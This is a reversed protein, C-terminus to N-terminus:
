TWTKPRKGSLDTTLESVFRIVRPIKYEAMNARCHGVIDARSLTVGPELAITAAVVDLGRPNTEAEVMCERVGDIANIVRQVESPDVKLGGINIWPVIRGLVYLRGHDDLRGLDGTRLFGNWYRPSKETEGVYGAAVSVGKVAVEGSEGSPLVRDGDLIVAEMGPVLDGVCHAPVSDERQIATVGTEVSGYSDRIAIGYRDKWVAALKPPLPASGTLCSRLTALASAPVGADAILGYAVPSSWLLDVAHQEITRAALLPEFRPLLVLTAGASLPLVLNNILGHGHHFPVAALMRRGPTMGIVSAVADAAHLLGGNTRPVIKPRGTSGSSILYVVPHRDPWRDGALPASIGDNLLADLDLPLFRDRSLGSDIWLAASDPPTLVVGPQIRELVWKIETARWSPNVPLFVAGLDACALFAAIAELGIPFSAVVVSGAQAGNLQLQHRLRGAVGLLQTYSFTSESGVIAPNTPGGCAIELLRPVIM